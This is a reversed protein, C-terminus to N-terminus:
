VITWDLDLDLELELVDFFITSQRSFINRNLCRVTIGNKPRPATEVVITSTNDNNPM